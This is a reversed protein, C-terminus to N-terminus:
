NFNELIVTHGLKEFFRKEIEVGSIKGNTLLENELELNESDSLVPECPVWTHTLWSDSNLITLTAM